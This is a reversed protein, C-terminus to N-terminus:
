GDEEEENESDTSQYLSEDLKHSEAANRVAEMDELKELIYKEKWGPIMAETCEVAVAWIGLRQDGLVNGHLQFYIRQLNLLKEAGTPETAQNPPPDSASAEAEPAAEPENEISEPEGVLQSASNKVAQPTPEITASTPHKSSLSM